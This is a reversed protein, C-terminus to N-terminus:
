REFHVNMSTALEAWAAIVYTKQRNISKIPLSHLHSEAAANLDTETGM